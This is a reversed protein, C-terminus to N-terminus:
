SGDVSGLVRATSTETVEVEGSYFLGLFLLDVSTTVTVEVRDVGIAKAEGIVGASSAFSVATSPASPALEPRGERVSEETVDGAGARAAASATNLAERKAAFINGGDYAVGALGVVALMLILILGIAAGRDKPNTEVIM